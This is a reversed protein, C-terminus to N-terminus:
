TRARKENGRFFALTNQLDWQHMLYNINSEDIMFKVTSFMLYIGVAVSFFVWYTEIGVKWLTFAVFFCAIGASECIQRRRMMEKLDNDWHQYLAASDEAYECLNQHIM